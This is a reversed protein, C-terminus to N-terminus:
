ETVRFADCMKADLFKLLHERSKVSPALFGLPIEAGGAWTKAGAYNPGFLRRLTDNLENSVSTTRAKVVLRSEDVIAWVIVLTVGKRRMLKNALRALFDKEEEIIYGGSGIFTSHGVHESNLVARWMEYYRDPLDYKRADSFQEQNGYEMLSAFMKRDLPTTGVAELSDTDGAIGLAGLTAVQSNKELPVELAFLLDAAISSASGVSEIAIWSNENERMDTKHHDIIVKPSIPGLSGFRKDDVMSSDVLVFVLHPPLENPLPRLIKELDFLNFLPQNLHSVKGAFYVFVRKELFELIKATLIACGISDPDIQAILIAFDENCATVLSRFKEVKKSDM